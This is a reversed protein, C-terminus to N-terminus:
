PPVCTNGECRGSFCDTPAACPEDWCLGCEGGVGCGNTTPDAICSAARCAGNVCHGSKCDAPGSCAKGDCAPCAKEGGCDIGEEGYDVTENTCSSTTCRGDSGCAASLCDGDKACHKGVACRACLPGGCDLDTEQGNWAGDDCRSPKCTSDGGCIASACESDSSCSQGECKGVCIGGCDIRSEGGGEGLDHKGNECRPDSERIGAVLACGFACGLALGLALPVFAAFLPRASLLGGRAPPRGHGRRRPPEGQADPADGVPAGDGRSSRARAHRDLHHRRERVARGGRDLERHLRQRLAPRRSRDSAGEVNCANSHKCNSVTDSNKVLAVMGLAGGVGTGVAGIATLAYGVTRGTSPRPAPEDKPVRRPPTVKPPDVKPAEVKPPDVKPAEVKPPDVKPPDNTQAGVITADGKWPDVVAVTSPPPPPPPSPLEELMPVLVVVPTTKGDELTVTVSWPKKGPAEAVIVHEGPDLPFATGWSAAGVLVGDRKVEVGTIEADTSVDIRLRCLRADLATARDTAKKARDAQGAIKAQEAAERFLAWASATQGNKEYCDALHLKTGLAPELRLSEALKPCAEVYNKEKLLRKGEDFLAQAAAKDTPSPDAFARTAPAVIALAIAVALSVQAVLRSRLRFLSFAAVSTM